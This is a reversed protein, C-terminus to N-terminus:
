PINSTEYNEMEMLNGPIYLKDGDEIDDYGLQRRKENVTLYYANELRKYVDNRDEQIADIGDKDYGLILNQGFKPVLWANLESILFNM